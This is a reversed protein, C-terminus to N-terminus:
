TRAKKARFCRTRAACCGTPWRNWGVCRITDFRMLLSKQQQHRTTNGSTGRLFRLYGERPTGVYPYTSPDHAYYQWWGCVRFSMGFVERIKGKGQGEGEHVVACPAALRGRLPRQEAASWRLDLGKEEERAVPIPGSRAGHKQQTNATSFFLPVLFFFPARQHAFGACVRLLTTDM